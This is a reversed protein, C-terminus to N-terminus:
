KTILTDLGLVGPRRERCRFPANSDRMRATCFSSFPPPFSPPGTVLTCPRRTGKSILTAGSRDSSSFLSMAATARLVPISPRTTLLVVM